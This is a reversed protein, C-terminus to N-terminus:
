RYESSSQDTRANSDRKPQDDTIPLFGISGNTADAVNFHKNLHAIYEEKTKPTETIQDVLGYQVFLGLLEVRKDETDAHFEECMEFFLVANDLSLRFAQM